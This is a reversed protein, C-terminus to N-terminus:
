GIGLAFSDVVDDVPWLRTLHKRREAPIHLRYKAFSNLNCGDWDYRSLSDIQSTEVRYLVLALCGQDLHHRNSVIVPSSRSPAKLVLMALTKPGLCVKTVNTKM